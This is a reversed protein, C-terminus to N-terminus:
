HGGLTSKGVWGSKALKRVRPQPRRVGSGKVTETQEYAGEGTRGGGRGESLRPGSFRKEGERSEVGKAEGLYIFGESLFIVLGRM